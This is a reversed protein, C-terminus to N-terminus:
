SLPPTWNREEATYMAKLAQHQGCKQWSKPLDGPLTWKGGMPNDLWSESMRDKNWCELCIGVQGKFWLSFLIPTMRQRVGCHAHSQDLQYSPCELLRNVLESFNGVYNEPEQNEAYISQIQLTGKRIFFRVMEGLHFSDCDKSNAYGKKCQLEKSSYLAVFHSQISSVTHLVYQRRAILEEEVGRPLMYWAPVDDLDNGAGSAPDRLWRES